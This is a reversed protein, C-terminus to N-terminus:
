KEEGKVYCILEKGYPLEEIMECFKHWETLKHNKRAFYINRLVQYNATWTRTQNWASPLLEVLARWYAQSKTTNYKQRIQELILILDNVIEQSTLSVDTGEEYENQIILPMDASDFSFCDKTIPTSALKHMTSTSNTTTAVKYQDMEKWWLLPATIDMSVMIQRMYKSDDATGSNLLRHALGMDKTGIIFIGTEKDYTSDSLHWSNLPNRMGRMAGDINYVSINDVQIM